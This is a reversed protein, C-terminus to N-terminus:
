GGGTVAVRTVIDSEDVWMCGGICCVYYEGEDIMRVECIYCNGRVRVKDGVEMNEGVEM